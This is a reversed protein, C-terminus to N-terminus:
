NGKKFSVIKLTRIKQEIGAVLLDVHQRDEKKQNMLQLTNLLKDQIEEFHKGIIIAAEEYSITKGINFMRLVPVLVLFM